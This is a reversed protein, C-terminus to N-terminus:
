KVKFLKNAPFKPSKEDSVWLVTIEKKIRSPNKNKALKIRNLKSIAIKELV